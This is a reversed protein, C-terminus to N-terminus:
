PRPSGAFTGAPEIPREIVNVLLVREPGSYKIEHITLQHPTRAVLLLSRTGSDRRVVDAALSGNPLFRRYLYTREGTPEEIYVQWRHGDEWLPAGTADLTVDSILVATELEGDADFDVTARQVYAWGPDGAKALAMTTDTLAGRSADPPFESMRCAAQLAILAFFFQRM